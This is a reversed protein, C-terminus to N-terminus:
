VVDSENLAMQCRISEFLFIWTLILIVKTYDLQSVHVDVKIINVIGPYHAYYWETKCLLILCSLDRDDVGGDLSLALRRITNVIWVLRQWTDSVSHWDDMMMMALFHLTNKDCNHVFLSSHKWIQSGCRILMRDCLSGRSDVVSGEGWIVDYLKEGVAM